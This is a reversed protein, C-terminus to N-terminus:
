STTESLHSNGSSFAYADKREAEERDQKRWKKRLTTMAIETENAFANVDRDMAILFETIEQKKEEDM